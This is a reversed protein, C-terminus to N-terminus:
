IAISGGSSIPEPRATDLSLGSNIVFATLATWLELRLVLSRQPAPIIEPASTPIAIWSPDFPM